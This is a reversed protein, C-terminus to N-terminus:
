HGTSNAHTRVLCPEGNQFDGTPHDEIGFRNSLGPTLVRRILYLTHTSTIVGDAGATICIYNPATTLWWIRNKHAHITGVNNMDADWVEVLGIDQGTVLVGTAKVTWIDDDVSPESEDAKQISAEREPTGYIPRM